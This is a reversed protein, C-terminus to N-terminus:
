EIIKPVIFAEDSKQPANKLAEDRSLCPRPEDDRMVNTADGAHVLPEVGELDLSEIKAVYDLIAGLQEGYTAIEKESLNLRALKAVRAVTEPDVAM